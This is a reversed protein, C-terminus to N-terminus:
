EQSEEPILADAHIEDSGHRLVMTPKGVVVTESADVSIIGNATTWTTWKKTVGIYYRHYVQGNLVYEQEISTDTVHNVKLVIPESSKTDDASNEYYHIIFVGPTKLSNLNVESGYSSDIVSFATEKSIRLACAIATDIEAGTFKSFYKAGMTM